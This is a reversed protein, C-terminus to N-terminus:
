QILLETSKQYRRIECVAVTEPRYRHPEKVGGTAPASKRAAKTAFQKRSAKGGTSKRATQKTRAVETFAVKEITTAGKASFSSRENPGSEKRVSPHSPASKGIAKLDLSNACCVSPTKTMRVQQVTSRRPPATVPCKGELEALVATFHRLRINAAVVAELIVLIHTQHANPSVFLVCLVLDTDRDFHGYRVFHEDTQFQFMSLSVTLLVVFKSRSGRPKEVFPLVGSSTNVPMLMEHPTNDQGYLTGPTVMRIHHDPKLTATITAIRWEDLYRVGLDGGIVVQVSSLNAGKRRPFNSCNPCFEGVDTATSCSTPAYASILFHPLGQQYRNTLAYVKIADKAKSGLVIGVSSVAHENPITYPVKHYEKKAHQTIGWRDCDVMPSQLTCAKTELNKFGDAYAADSNGYVHVHQDNMKEDLHVFQENGYLGRIIDSAISSKITHLVRGGAAAQNRKSDPDVILLRKLDKARVSCTGSNPQEPQRKYVHVKLMLSIRKHRCLYCLSIFTNKREIIFKDVEDTVTCDTACYDVYRDIFELEKASANPQASSPAHRRPSRPSFMKTHPPQPFYPPTNPRPSVLSGMTGNVGLIGDTPPGPSDCALSGYFFIMEGCCGCLLVADLTDFCVCSKHGLSMDKQCWLYRLNTFTIRTKPTRASVEDSVGGESSICSGLHTFNEVVTLSERQIILIINLSRLNQLLVKYKSPVLRMGFSPTVTTLKNLLAQAQGEDEFMCITHEAYEVDVLNRIDYKIEEELLSDLNVNWEGTHMIEVSQTAPPWGFLEEFHEAWRELRRKQSQIITESVTTKRPGTSRILQYLARSNRTAFAKKMERAKSTWWLEREKRLNKVIQRKLSKRAGEYENGAAISKRVDIM